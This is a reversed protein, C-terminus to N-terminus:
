FATVSTKMQIPTGDRELLLMRVERPKGHMAAFISGWNAGKTLLDDIRVLKDGVQVGQVTPKGNQTAIGAVFFEGGKSILTLGVQDLDHPDAESQRVWYSMRNPYDITIRFDRLVNGGLWGIVSIPNKQSYWDMFDWNTDSPGIALAGMQHISLSGMKVEPIRLLIGAAEIGDDGMRMNSTGVAGTGRQWEPHAAIWEHETSKRLWTYASGNDITIAYSKGNITADVAILGTKKNIHFGVPSGDLKLTGPQALTLTRNGYDIVVQFKQLVGAPLLGEVKRDCAILFPLWPDGTVSGADVKVTMEGLQIELPKQPGLQLEALLDPSLITSPSGMDVLVMTKRLSGDPRLFTVDAYMRNGDFVFPVTGSPPEQPVLRLPALVFLIGSLLCRRRWLFPLLM